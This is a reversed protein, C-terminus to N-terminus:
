KLRDRVPRVSRRHIPSIGLTDLAKEHEPGGYGHQTGFGYGPYQGEYEEMIRDLTVKAIISAAAISVSLDDGQPIPCQDIGLEPIEYHDVLVYDPQQRLARVAERLIRMHCNDIGLEDIQQASIEALGIAVAGEQIREYAAHLSSTRKKKSDRIGSPDFDEPLIVAAALMPGAWAARGVEDVGAIHTYGAARAEREYAVRDVEAPRQEM